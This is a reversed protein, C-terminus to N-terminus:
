RAGGLPRAGLELEARLLYGQGALYLLGVLGLAGLLIAPSPDADLVWWAVAGLAAVPLAAVLGELLRQGSVQVPLRARAARRVLALTVLNSGALAVGAGHAGLSPVLLLTVGLAVAAGVAHPVILARTDLEVHAVLAYAAIAIRACEAAAGWAAYQVATQFAPGLLVKALLPAAGVVLVGTLLLGPFLAGAYDEWAHRRAEADGLTAKRYYAPQLVQTFLAEFLALIGSALMYGMAFLGLAAAGEAGAVVFRYGQSQVWWLAVSIALPIAFLFAARVDARVPRSVGRGPGAARLFRPLVAVAVLGQAVLPGLLWLEARPGITLVLAASLGLAGVATVVAAAVYWGAHGLLNFSPIVTQHFSGVLLSGGVLVVLWGVPIGGLGPALALVLPLLLTAVAAVLLFWATMSGLRPVLVGQAKWPHLQRNFYNGMPGIAALAFLGTVALVLFTEGVEEPSLLETMVRTTALMALGLAVRGAGLVLVRHRGTLRAGPDEAPGPGTGPMGDLEGM